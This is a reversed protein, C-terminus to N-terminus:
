FAPTLEGVPDRRYPAWALAVIKVTINSKNPRLEVTQFTQSAPQGSADISAAEAQFEADLAAIQQKVADVSEGARTIDQVQELSRGVGRLGTAAKSINAATMVKRGLFAGLLTSGLSLATSITASRAQGAERQVAQEARRLREQLAATKPAYKARLKALAVDRQERSGQSLRVRFEAESEDVRSVQNYTTSRLLTLKRSGYVANVFDRHWTEYNRAQAAASPLPAFENGSAPNRELDNPDLPADQAKTWDVPVPADNIPTMLVITQTVDVRAKPDAFRVSAAGLLMPQYVLGGASGSRVPIFFQPIVPALTPQTNELRSETTLAPVSESPPETATVSALGPISVASPADSESEGPAPRLASSVHAARAAGPASSPRPAAAGGARRMDMLMKIQDRTMPGRLYSMAWRSEFVSAADEHVNHLLFVRRGLAALTQEMAARDFGGMQSAAAGELGELVRQKDRETQLRGLFWTGINALGKYDLDVPNQTALVAGLGFARGQKLLTLLPLKSPPNAVPPFYGFIEDMYLLARLSTTGPQSRMWALVQNLLLTVFFMREADTLHAISFIAVRPLGKAGYLVRQIDLPEGELWAGFGPSALLGNIATALSFRDKAPYFTEVDMVGIRQVTPNQIQQILAGLDLDRQEQWARQLLNALFIAERSRTPDADIGLLALLGSVTSSLRERLLESDSLITQPPAAFSNLISVPVGANSGPTYIVFEAAARLRRIREGDQDWNALGKRWLEAQQAAFDALTLGRQRAEDSSVWPEFDAPRLDPFTLLLNTLDGKPDILIAPIGDIAAEEIIDFCLGTKGSGTMGVCLAHTLLDNADYLLLEPLTKHAALDHYRGLYFVGLKEYAQM